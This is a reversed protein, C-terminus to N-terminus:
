GVKFAYLCYLCSQPISYKGRAINKAEDESKARIGNWQMEVGFGTRNYYIVDYSSIVEEEEILGELLSPPPVIRKAPKAREMEIGWAGELIEEVTIM